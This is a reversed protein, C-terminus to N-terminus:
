GDRDGQQQKQEELLERIKMLTQRSLVLAEVIELILSM